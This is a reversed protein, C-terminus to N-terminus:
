NGTAAGLYTALYEALPDFDDDAIRAGKAIMTDLQAEWQRRTMRHRLVLELSHCQSCTREALERGPGDPLPPQVTPVPPTQATAVFVALIGLKVLVLTSAVARRQHSTM